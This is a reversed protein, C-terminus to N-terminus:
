NFFYTFNLTAMMYIYKRIGQYRMQFWMILTIEEIEMRTFSFPHNLNPSLPMTPPTINFHIESPLLIHPTDNISTATTPGLIYGVLEVSTHSIDSSKNIDFKKKLLRVYRIQYQNSKCRSFM